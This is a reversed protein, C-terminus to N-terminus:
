DVKLGVSSFWVERVTSDFKANSHNSFKDRVAPFQHLFIQVAIVDYNTVKNIM